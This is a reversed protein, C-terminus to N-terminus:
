SDDTRLEVTIWGLESAIRIGAGPIDLPEIVERLARCFPGYGTAQIPPVSPGAAALARVALGADPWENLGGLGSGTISGWLSPRSRAFLRSHVAPM